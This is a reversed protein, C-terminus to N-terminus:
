ENTMEYLLHECETMMQAMWVIRAVSEVSTVIPLIAICVVYLAFIIVSTFRRNVRILHM